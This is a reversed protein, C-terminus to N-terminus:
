RRPRWLTLEITKSKDSSTPDAIRIRGAVAHTMAGIRAELINSWADIRAFSDRSTLLWARRLDNADVNDLSIRAVRDGDFGPGGILWLAGLPVGQCLAVLGPSQGTFDIMPQGAAYGSDRTLRLFEAVDRALAPAVNLDIRAPNAPLPTTQEALPAGLRYTYSGDLWQRALFEAPLAALLAVSIAFAWTAIRHELLLARLQAITVVLPFVAAMGMHWLLPNNTGFSYALPVAVISSGVVFRRARTPPSQSGRRLWMAALAVLAAVITLLVIRHVRNDRVFTLLAAWAIFVVVAISEALSRRPTRRALALVVVSFLLPWMLIRLSRLVERPIEVAFLEVLENTPKRADRAWAIEIGARFRAPLDPDTLWLLFINLLAAGAVLSAIRAWSRADLRGGALAAVMVVCLALVLIGSTVKTAIGVSAVLGLACATGHLGRGDGAVIKCGLRLSLACALLACVLTLLNYSPTPPGPFGGYYSWIGAGGALAAAVLGERGPKGALMQLAATVEHSFWIGAGLLLVIGLIRFAWVSQDLAAFPLSFYAGFMSVSPWETWHRFTLLYFSEDTLDLGRTAAVTFVSAQAALILLPVWALSGRGGM